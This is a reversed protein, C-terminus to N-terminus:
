PKRKNQKYFPCESDPTEGGSRWGFHCKRYPSDDNHCYVSHQDVRYGYKCDQDFACDEPDAVMEVLNIM